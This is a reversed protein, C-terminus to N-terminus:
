GAFKVYKLSTSYCFNRVITRTKYSKQVHTGLMADKAQEMQSTPIISTYWRAVGEPVPYSFSVCLDVLLFRYKYLNRRQKNGLLVSLCPMEVAACHKRGGSPLASNLSSLSSFLFGCPQKIHDGGANEKQWMLILQTRNIIQINLCVLDLKVHSSEGLTNHEGKLSPTQKRSQCEWSTTKNM